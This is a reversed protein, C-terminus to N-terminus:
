SPKASGQAEAEACDALRNAKRSALIRDKRKQKKGLTSFWDGFQDIVTGKACETAYLPRAMGGSMLTLVFVAAVFKRM